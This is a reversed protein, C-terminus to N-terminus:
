FKLYVLLPATTLLRKLEEFASQCETTWAVDKKTLAHLLFKSYVESLLFGVWCFLPSRPPPFESVAQLKKPDTTIGESSVIHGLYQVELQAFCCKKPKLRLGAAHFRDLVQRVNENHERMTKGMVLVDDLYVLCVERALGSLVFEM